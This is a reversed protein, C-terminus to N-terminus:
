WSTMGYLSYRGKWSTLESLPYGEKMVDTGALPLPYPRHGDKQMWWKAGVQEARAREGWKIRRADGSTFNERIKFSNSLVTWRALKSSISSSSTKLFIDQMYVEQNSFPSYKLSVGKGINKTRQVHHRGVKVYTQDIEPIKWGPIKENRDIKVSNLMCNLM